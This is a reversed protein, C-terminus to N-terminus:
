CKLKGGCINYDKKNYYIFLFSLNTLRFFFYIDFKFILSKFYKKKYLYLARTEIKKQKM